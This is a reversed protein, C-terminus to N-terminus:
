SRVSQQLPLRQRTRRGASRSGDTKTTLEPCEISTKEALMEGPVIEDCRTDDVCQTEEVRLQPDEEGVPDALIGGHAKCGVPENADANRRLRSPACSLM